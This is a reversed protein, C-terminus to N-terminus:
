HKPSVPEEYCLGQGSRHKPFSVDCRQSKMNITRQRWYGIFCLVGPTGPATVLTMSIDHLEKLLVVRDIVPFLRWKGCYNRGPRRGELFSSNMRNNILSVIFVM